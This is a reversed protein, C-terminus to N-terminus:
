ENDLLKDVVESVIEKDVVVSANGDEKIELLVLKDMNVDITKETPIYPVVLIYQSNDNQYTDVVLLDGLTTNSFSIVSGKEYKNM